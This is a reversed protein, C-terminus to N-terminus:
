PQSRPSLCEKSGPPSTRARGYPRVGRARVRRDARSESALCNRWSYSHFRAAAALMAQWAEGKVLEAVGASLQEHLQTLQAERAEQRAEREAATPSFRRRAMM